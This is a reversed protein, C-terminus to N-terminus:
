SGQVKTDWDGQDSKATFIYRRSKAGVKADCEFTVGQRILINRSPCTVDVPQRAVSSLSKELRDGVVQMNEFKGELKWTVDGKEDGSAMVDFVARTGNSDQGMCQFTTGKALIVKPCTTGTVAVGKAAMDAQIDAALKQADLLKGQVKWAVDGKADGSATVDFVASAGNSDRGTCQFTTGKALIVNPCTTGTVTVGKAAMDAQIEKELKPADLRPPSCGSVLAAVAVALARSSAAVRVACLTKM